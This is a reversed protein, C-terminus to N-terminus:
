VKELKELRKNLNKVIELLYFNVKSYDVVLQTGAPVGTEDCEEKVEDNKFCQVMDDCENLILEQAIFGLYPASGEEDTKWNYWKPTMNLLKMADKSDWEEINKKVRRDSTCYVSGRVWINNYTYLSVYNTSGAYSSSGSSSYNWGSPVTQNVGGNLHIMGNTSASNAQYFTGDGTANANQNVVLLCGGSSGSSGGTGFSFGTTASTQNKLTFYNDDSGSTAHRYHSISWDTSGGQAVHGIKMLTQTAGIAETSYLKLNGYSTTEMNTTDVVFLDGTNGNKRIKLAVSSTVDVFLAKEMFIYTGSPTISLEGASSVAFDAYNTASGDIDNYTLRLCDGTSSNIECQSTPLSTNVGLKSNVVRVINDTTNVLFVDGGANNKRVAFAYTSTIDIFTYADIIFETSSPRLTLSGGSSVLFDTYNTASGNSDNYTLRLCNGTSDNVELATTPLSTGLGTKGDAKFMIKRTSLSVSEGMNGFFLDASSGVTASSGAQIYLIGGSELCRYRAGGTNGFQATGNVTLGTLTGLSTITPQASGIRLYRSDAQALTLGSTLDFDGTNFTNSLLVAPYSSM